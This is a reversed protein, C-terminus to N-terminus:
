RTWARIPTLRRQKPLQRNREDPPRHASSLSGWGSKTAVKASVAKFFRQSGPSHFDGAPTRCQAGSHAATRKQKRNVRGGGAGDARRLWRVVRPALGTSRSNASIVRWSLVHTGQRLRPPIITVITNEATVDTPAIVEGDPGIIRMVLPSVPENFTLKLSAPPQTVVAGDAPEAPAVQL